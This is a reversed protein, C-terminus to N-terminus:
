CEESWEIARRAIKKYSFADRGKNEAVNKMKKYSEPNDVLEEIKQRIEEESSEKLFYVNGGLDVHKTGDWEKCLMPIGQAAVQEWFVSHRGAFVVLDAAAFYRYSEKAQVWGIYQIRTEDCLQHVQEQLSDAVSGFVILKVHKQGMNHVAEMLTLTQTKYEDIKGGTVILFDDEEIGFSNRINRINEEKAAEEVLADEAGMVLLKCKDDPLRYLEKLFDVRAPLVGYFKNTYPNLRNAVFRWIIKHLINKSLWNSAGNSYDVHNDAYVRVERGAKKRRQLYKTITLVDLFQIDHVFLIDPDEQELTQYLNRYLKLRTDVTGFLLPLRVVKVDDANMYDSETCLEKEGNTGWIWQSAIITVDLGMRRHEATLLNEQYNWGDTMPGCLCVHVIKM